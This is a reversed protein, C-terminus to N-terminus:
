DKLMLTNIYNFFYRLDTGNLMKEVQEPIQSRKQITMKCLFDAQNELEFKCFYISM